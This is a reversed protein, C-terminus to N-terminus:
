LRTDNVTLVNKNHYTKPSLGFRTENPNFFADVKQFHVTAMEQIIQNLHTMQSMSGLWKWLVCESELRWGNSAGPMVPHARSNWDLLGTFAWTFIWRAHIILMAETFSQVQSTSRLEPVSFPGSKLWSDSNKSTPFMFDMSFGHFFIDHKSM